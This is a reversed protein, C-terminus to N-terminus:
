RELGIWSTVDEPASSVEVSVDREEEVENEDGVSDGDEGVRSFFHCRDRKPDLDWGAVGDWRPPPINADAGWLGLVLMGANAMVGLLLKAFTDVLEDM